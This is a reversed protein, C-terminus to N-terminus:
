GNIPTNLALKITVSQKILNKNRQRFNEFSTAEVTCAYSYGDDPKVYFVQPSTLLEQFRNANYQDMWNTNLDLTNSVNINYTRSGMADSSYEWENSVVQGDVHQNYM